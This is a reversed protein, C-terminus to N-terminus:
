FEKYPIDKSDLWGKVHEPIPTNSYVEFSAGNARAIRAHDGVDSKFKDFGKGPQARDQWYRGSKAEYWISDDTGYAGDFERGGSKFNGKGGLHEHLYDEFDVGILGQASDNGIDGDSIMVNPVDPVDAPTGTHNPGLDVPDEGYGPLTLDTGNLGGDHGTDCALPPPLQDGGTDNPLQPASQDGGTHNVPKEDTKKRLAAPCTDTYYCMLAQSKLTQADDLAKMGKGGNYIYDYAMPAVVIAVPSAFTMVDTAAAALAESGAAFTGGIGAAPGMNLPLADTMLGLPDTGSVPNLPYAYLNWGGRLGIPDQTIYRGQEPNYYRYRNYYLGTEEDYQQ